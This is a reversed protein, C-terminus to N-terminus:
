DEDNEIPPNYIQQSIEARKSDLADTARVAMERNFADEATAYDGSAAANIFEDVNSM